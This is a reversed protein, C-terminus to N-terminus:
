LGGGSFLSGRRPGPHSVAGFFIGGYWRVLYLLTLVLVAFYLVAPWPSSLEVLSSLLLMQGIFQGLPPIGALALGGILAVVATGPMVVGMGGLNALSAEGARVEVLGLVLYLSAMSLGYVVIILWIGALGRDAPLALAAFIVLLQALAGYALVRRANDESLAALSLLVGGGLGVWVMVERWYTFEGFVGLLLRAFPHIGIVFAGGTVLFAGAASAVPQNGGRWAFGVLVVVKLLIAALILLSVWEVGTGRMASIGYGGNERVLILLGALMALSGVVGGLTLPLTLTNAGLQGIGWAFLFFAVAWLGYFVLVNDVGFFVLGLIIFFAVLLLMHGGGSWRLLYVSTLLGIIATLVLLTSGLPGLGMIDLPFQITLHSLVGM